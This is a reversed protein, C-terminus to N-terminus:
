ENLKKAETSKEEWGCASYFALLVFYFGSYTIEVTASLIFAYISFLLAASSGRNNQGCRGCYFTVALLLLGGILGTYILVQALGNQANPGFYQSVIASGYGYGIWQKKSIIEILNEYILTRSFINGIKGISELYSAVIPINMITNLIFIVVGSLVVALTMVFPKNIFCFFGNWRNSCKFRLTRSLVTLILIFLIMFLGTYAKMFFALYLIICYFLLIGVKKRNLKLYSSQRNVKEKTLYLYLCLMIVNLYSVNFKNGIFYVNSANDVVDKGQVVVTIVTPIWYLMLCNWSAQAVKKSGRKQICIWPVTFYLLLKWAFKVGTYTIYQGNYSRNILSSVLYSCAFLIILLLAGKKIYNINTIVYLTCLACGTLEIIMWINQSIVTIRVLLFLWMIQIAALNIDIETKKM